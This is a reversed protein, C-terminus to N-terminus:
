RFVRDDYPSRGISRHQELWAAAAKTDAIEGRLIALLLDHTLVTNFPADFTVRETKSGAMKLLFPIRRDPSNGYVAEDEPTWTKHERWVERWWHDSTVLVVTSDWTGKSEMAARLDGLTRDVLELNDLYSHGEAPSIQDAARDYVNPPHPIGWHALVLDFAPDTAAAVTEQYTSGLDMVQKRRELDGVDFRQPFVFTVFPITYIATKAHDWMHWGLHKWGRPLSERGSLDAVAQDAPLGGQWDCRDLSDALIRCYPHYWGFAATSFGEARAHSFISPQTRWSVPETDDGFKIMLDQPGAPRAESILRGTILAPISLLTEGAPPYANNAFLSENALRDLQPLQVTQPRNQFAVRFDFEDFIMWLVRPGNDKRAAPAAGAAAVPERYKMAVLVAQSFTVLVFPALILILTIAIKTTRKQRWLGLMVFFISLSLPIVIQLRLVVLPDSVFWRLLRQGAKTDLQMLLGHVPLSLLLIFAVRALTKVVESQSRRVLTIAIFFLIGLLVVVGILGAYHVVPPLVKRHYYYFSSTPILLSRWATIFCLNALSLGIALDRVKNSNSM